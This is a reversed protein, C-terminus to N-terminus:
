CMPRHDAALRTPARRRSLAAVVSIRRGQPDTGCRGPQSSTRPPSPQWQHRIHLPETQAPRHCPRPPARGQTRFPAGQGTHPLLRTLPEPSIPPCPSPLEEAHLRLQSRGRCQPGGEVFFARLAEDQRHTANTPELFVQSLDTLKKAKSTFM